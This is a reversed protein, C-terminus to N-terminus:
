PAFSLERDPTSQPAYASRWPSVVSPFVPFSNGSFTVNVYSRSLLIFLPKGQRPPKTNFSLCFLFACLCPPPPPFSIPDLTLVALTHLQVPCLGALWAPLLTQTFAQKAKQCESLKFHFIDKPQNFLLRLITFDMQVWKHGKQTM